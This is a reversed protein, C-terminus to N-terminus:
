KETKNKYILYRFNETLYLINKNMVQRGFLISCEDIYIGDINLKGQIIVIINHEEININNELKDNIFYIECNKFIKM